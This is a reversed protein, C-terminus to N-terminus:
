LNETFDQRITLSKVYKGTPAQVRIQIQLGRLPAPYPPPYSPYVPPSFPPGIPHKTSPDFGRAPAMTYDTSWSDWVRRLRVINPNNDGINSSYNPFAPYEARTSPGYTPNPYQADLRNDNVLPPIRGEHAFTANLLDVLQNNLFFVPQQTATQQFVYAKTIANYTMTPNGILFPAAGAYPAYVPLRADDGWGLDVYDGLSSDLVKIDFSRVGTMVLDDEWSAPILPGSMFSSIGGLGDSYLQPVPRMLSFQYATERDSTNYAMPPLLNADDNVLGTTGNILNNFRPTLGPPQVYGINSTNIPQTPDFWGFAATTGSKPTFSLTERWTPFGWWTQLGGATNTPSGSTATPRPLNDGLDLPNHNLRQLYHLYNNGPTANDPTPSHLWGAGLSFPDPHSYAGPFVYPFAMTSLNAGIRTPPTGSGNVNGGEYILPANGTPGVGSSPLIDYYLSPYYDPVGDGTVLNPTVSTNVNLDDPTQDYGVSTTYSDTSSDYFTSVFDSSFRPSFARNERNTLDGLSNLVIGVGTASPRASIDNVGQWSVSNSGLLGPQFGNVYVSNTNQLMSVISKQREPAILFVRRYLNGNRLFYIVEAYQSTITIPNPLLASNPWFRGIFPRDAPAKTTFRVYDDSDEGQLDAFANEGYEFYGRNDQPNNPPTLKATVGNFDSRIMGDLRRLGSDLEQYARSASLSSTAAQFIQVIATMMIMLIALTVLMEVLTVGRRLQNNRTSSRPRM